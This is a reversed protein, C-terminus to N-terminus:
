GLVWYDINNNQMIISEFASITIKHTPRSCFCYRIVTKFGLLNLLHPFLLIKDGFTGCLKRKLINGFLSEDSLACFGFCINFGEYVPLPTAEMSSRNELTLLLCNSCHNSAFSSVQKVLDVEQLLFRSMLNNVSKLRLPSPLNWLLLSSRILSLM